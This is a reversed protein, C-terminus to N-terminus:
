RCRSAPMYSLPDIPRAKPTASFAKMKPDVAIKVVTKRAVDPKALVSAVKRPEM